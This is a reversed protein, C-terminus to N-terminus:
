LATAKPLKIVYGEKVRVIDANRVSTWGYNNDTFESSIDALDYLDAVTVYDYTEIIEEMSELVDKAEDRTDFIVDDYSYGRSSRRPRDRDRSYDSYSTYSVRHSSRKKSERTEGYLIMDIGNTVMDSIAKKAAPILVDMVIYSKVNSVDESVFASTLKRGTNKKKKGKVVPKIDKKKANETKSKHSNAKYEAM